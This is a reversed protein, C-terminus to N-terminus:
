QDEGRIEERQPVKEEPICWRIDAGFLRSLEPDDFQVWRDYIFKEETVVDFLDRPEGGKALVAEVFPRPPYLDVVLTRPGALVNGLSDPEAYSVHGSGAYIIFLADPYKQRFRQITNLWARNRLRVGELSSWVRRRPDIVVDWLESEDTLLLSVPNHFVFGPELGGGIMHNKDAEGFVDFYARWDFFLDYEMLSAGEAPLFETLFVIQKEEGHVRRIERLLRAVVPPTEPIHSEGLLVYDKGLTEKALYEWDHQPSPPMPKRAAHFDPERQKIEEMRRDMRPLKRALARNQQSLFYLAIQEQNLFDPYGFEQSTAKLPLSLSRGALEGSKIAFYPYEVQARMAQMYSRQVRETLVRDLNDPVRHALRGTAKVARLWPQQAEGTGALLFLAVFVLIWRTKKFYM